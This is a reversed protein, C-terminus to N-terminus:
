RAPAVRLIRGEPSDTLLYLLGDPGQRVDRIRERLHALYREERTVRGDALTLRVLLGPRLSGIFLSGRWDPFVQGTYFTMGSPAIVPDWYYVPQEMGPKATGEGIRAGSYDVGYTIVPWGYNKGAEPHNLEDGGRPGHEATWLQGTQPHLAAAQVNRHGYSWIEPRAGPRGVFPNDRPVSGDANLRVIKGITTSLDQARERYAFRDGLTVFLTGDRRFVLRSGWHNPGEVKPQQRWIVQTGDLGREGLRGRAVATGAGGAGPEAFSLYVLRDQAFTPSLAVDLLGGQGRAYVPPVGSLPESLRGDREVLRLRGPRETVLMRGDPLFALGWPHELGRAVTEVRVPADTPEPTPSRPAQGAVPVTAVLVGLAWTVVTLVIIHALHATPRNHLM